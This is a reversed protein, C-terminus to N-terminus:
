CVQIHNQSDIFIWKLCFLIKTKICEKVGMHNKKFFSLSLSLTPPWFYTNNLESHVRWWRKVLKWSKYPPCLRGEDRGPLSLLPNQSFPACWPRTDAGRWHTHPPNPTNTEWGDKFLETDPQISPLPESKGLFHSSSVRPNRGRRSRQLWLVGGPLSGPPHLSSLFPCVAEWRQNKHFFLNSPFFISSIYLLFFFIWHWPKNKQSETSIFRRRPARLTRSQQENNEECLSSGAPFFTQRLTLYKEVRGDGESM